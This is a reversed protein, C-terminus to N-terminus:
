WNLLYRPPMVQVSTMGNEISKSLWMDLIDGKAIADKLEEEVEDFFSKIDTGDLSGFYPRNKILDHLLENDFFIGFDGWTHRFLDVENALKLFKLDPFHNEFNTEKKM